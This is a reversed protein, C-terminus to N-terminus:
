GTSGRVIAHCGGPQASEARSHVLLIRYIAEVHNHVTCQSLNLPAAITKEPLGTPLLNFVRRQAKTIQIAGSDSITKNNGTAHESDSEDRASDATLLFAVVGFRLYQGIDIKSRKVPKENVYTGNRSQLDEVNICRGTVEIKAHRRSVSIHKVVLDSRSSRGLVFSGDSVQFDAFPLSPSQNHLIFSM